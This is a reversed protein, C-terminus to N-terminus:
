LYKYKIYLLYYRNFYKVKPKDLMFLNFMIDKLYKKVIIINANNHVYNLTCLLDTYFVSLILLKKKENLSSWAGNGHIRYVSMCENIYFFDGKSIQYSQLYWDGIQKKKLSKIFNDSLNNRMVISATPVTNAKFLIFDELKIKEKIPNTIFLNQRENEKVLLANHFCLSYGLNAELFDVQKQLKNPDTWFDDGECMAIYKTSCKSYTNIFNRQPGLNQPNLIHVIKDPFREAYGKCIKSTGDTSADDAVFLKIPFSTQQILFGEISQTIFKEHNYTLMIVSLM